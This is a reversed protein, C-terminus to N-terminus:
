GIRARSALDEDVAQAQVADVGGEADRALTEEGGEVRQVVDRVVDVEDDAALLAAHRVHGFRPALQGAPRADPEDGATGAGGGGRDADVGSVLVGGRHNEEDPLYGPVHHLPLGELLDVEAPHEALHGLPHRLDVVRRADRFQDAAGEM